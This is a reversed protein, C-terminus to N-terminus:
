QQGHGPARLLRLFTDVSVNSSSPDPPPSTTTNTTTPDTTTSTTTLPPPQHTQGECYKPGSVAGAKPTTSQPAAATKFYCTGEYFTFYACERTYQCLLQCAEPKTVSGLGFATVDSGPYDVDQLFCSTPPPTTTSTSIPFTPSASLDCDRAGSSALRNYERGEEATDDKLYCSATSEVYTWYFCNNFGKCLQQCSQVDAVNGNFSRIDHGMFDTSKECAIPSNTPCERPGSVAEEHAKPEVHSGKLYCRSTSPIFTWLACGVVANCQYQCALPNAVQTDIIDDGYLDIGTQSCDVPGPCVRPGSVLGEADLPVAEGSKLYCSRTSPQYVWFACKQVGQCQRQCEVPSFVKGILRDVDFGPYDM